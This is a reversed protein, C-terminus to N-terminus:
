PRAGDATPDLLFAATAQQVTRAAVQGSTLGNIAIAPDQASVGDIVAYGRGPLILLQDENSTPDDPNKAETFAEIWM